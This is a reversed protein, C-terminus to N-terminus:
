RFLAADISDAMRKYGADGPHLKDGSDYEARMVRPNAEDRIAAEFDIVADFEGSGRIWENVALRVEDKAPTYYGAFTGEFPTLTGGYIKLGRAHARAILQRYGAILEDATREPPAPGTTGPFNFGGTGIDNIGELVIVHTLGPTSLVDRDFRALASVGAGDRLVQNGSIGQNVVAVNAAAIRPAFHDPWSNYSHPTSAAGDTISDGLAAVVAVNENTSVYVGTLFVHNATLEAGALDAAQTFDGAGSVYATRGMHMTAPPTEDPLYISVAIEALDALKLDVPDSLAPAGPPIKISDAGGFTLKRLSAGDVAADRGALAVTAAGIVLPTTGLENSFRVRVQEGGVSIRLKQRVTQNMFPVPAPAPGFAVFGFPSAGWTAVWHAGSEGPQGAGCGGLFPLAFCLLAFWRAPRLNM